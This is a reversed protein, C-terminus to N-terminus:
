WSEPGFRQVDAVHYQIATGKMDMTTEVVDNGWWKPAEIEQLTFAFFIFLTAM